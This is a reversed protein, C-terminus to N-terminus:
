KKSVWPNEQLYYRWPLFADKGAYDVGIRTTTVIDSKQVRINGDEVWIVDDTLPIGNLGLDIGMAISLKGPGSTLNNKNNVLGRRKEMNELNKVPELARILVAEGVGSKNTVVNFLNYVGYILYVYGIGGEAFLTKTRSTLKGGYAHCAKESESYAETEVIIGKTINGDINTALVKGLLEKAVTCVNNNLYFSRNLKM